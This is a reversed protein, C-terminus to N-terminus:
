HNDHKAVAGMSIGTRGMDTPPRLIIECKDNGTVVEIIFGNSGIDWYVQTDRIMEPPVYTVFKM